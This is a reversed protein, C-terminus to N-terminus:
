GSKEVKMHSGEQTKVEEGKKGGHATGEPNYLPNLNGDLDSPANTKM